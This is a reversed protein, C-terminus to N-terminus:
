NQLAVGVVMGDEFWSALFQALREPEIEGSRQFAAMQCIDGFAHGARAETLALFEDPELERYATEDHRRWIAVTEVGDAPDPDPADVPEEEDDAPGAYAALTGAALELVVLSPHFAFVFRPSDEPPFDALAQIPLPQADPADFANVMAREFRAMSLAKSDERWRPHTQMYEPLGTTYWRANRNTPPNAEVYDRALAEFAEDGILEQLGPHDEYLFGELRLRYGSQYVQLLEERAAGKDSDRLTALLPADEAGSGALIRAQFLAQFDSLKM